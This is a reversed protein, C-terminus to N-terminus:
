WLSASAGTRPSPPCCAACSRTCTRSSCTAWRRRSCSPSSRGPWLSLGFRERSLVGVYSVVCCRLGVASGSMRAPDILRWGNTAGALCCVQELIAKSSIELAVMEGSLKTFNSPALRNLIIMVAKSVKALESNDEDKSKTFSKEARNLLAFEDERRRIPGSKHSQDSRGWQAEQALAVRPLVDTVAVRWCTCRCMFPPPPLLLVRCHCGVCAGVTGGCWLWLWLASTEGREGDRWHGGPVRVQPAPRDRDWKGSSSATGRKSDSRRGGSSGGSGLVEFKVLSAPWSLKGMGERIRRLDDLSYSTGSSEAESLSRLRKAVEAAERQLEQQRRQLEALEEDKSVSVCVCALVPDLRWCLSLKDRGWPMAHLRVATVLSVALSVVRCTCLLM